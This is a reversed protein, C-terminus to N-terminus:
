PRGELAIASVCTCECVCERPVVSVQAIDSILCVGTDNTTSTVLVRPSKSPTSSSSSPRRGHVSNRETLETPDYKRDSFFKKIKLIVFLLSFFFHTTQLFILSKESHSRVPRLEARSHLSSSSAISLFSLSLAGRIAAKCM